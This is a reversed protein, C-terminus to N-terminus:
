EHVGGKRLQQLQARAAPSSLMERLLPILEKRVTTPLEEWRPRLQIQDFLDPQQSRVKSKTIM